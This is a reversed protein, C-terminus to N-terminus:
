FTGERVQGRRRGKHLPVVVPPTCSENEPLPVDGKAKGLEAVSKVGGLAPSGALPAATEDYYDFWPLGAKTYQRATPPTTPPAQGTVARWVLSNVIHVFCRSGHEVDWDALEFSDKYLAQKMKGGAALGMEHSAPAARCKRRVSVEGRMGALRRPPFLRQFSEVQMPHVLLQLGGHEAEGTLQEEATYGAGLPMAVFQRVYGREVCYGDLWPQLPAVLYDQPGTRLGASWPGGTVANVKGAAVKIVFPYSTGHGALYTAHFRLWLAESQYMPLM